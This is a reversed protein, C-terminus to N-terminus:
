EGGAAPATPLFIHLEVNNVVISFPIAVFSILHVVFPGPSRRSVFGKSKRSCVSAEVGARRQFVKVARKAVCLWITRWFIGADFYACFHKAASAAGEFTFDRTCTAVEGCISDRCILDTCDALSALLTAVILCRMLVIAQGHAPGGWRWIMFAMDDILEIDHSVPRVAQRVM